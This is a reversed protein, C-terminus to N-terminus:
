FFKTWVYLLEERGSRNPKIPTKVIGLHDQRGGLRCSEISSRRKEM